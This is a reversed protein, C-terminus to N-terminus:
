AAKEFHASELELKRSFRKRFKPTFLLLGGFVLHELFFSSPSLAVRDNMTPNLIPLVIYNMVSWIGVGYIIGEWFSIFVTFESKTLSAFIVGFLVSLLYHTLLGALIVSLGGIIAEVGFFTAGILKMPFFAEDGFVTSILMSVLAMGTGSVLGALVGSPLIEHIFLNSDSLPIEKM